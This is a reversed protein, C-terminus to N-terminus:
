SNKSHAINGCKAILQAAAIPYGYNKLNNMVPDIGFNGTNDQWQKFTTEDYEHCYVHNNGGVIGYRFLRKLPRHPHISPLIVADKYHIFKGAFHYMANMVKQKNPTYKDVFQRNPKM